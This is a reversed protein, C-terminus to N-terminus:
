KLSKRKTKIRWAFIILTLTVIGIIIILPQILTISTSDIVPETGYGSYTRSIINKVGLINDLTWIDVSYESTISEGPYLIKGEPNIEFREEIQRQKENMIQIEGEPKFVFDSTNTYTYEFTTDLLKPFGTQTINLDTITKTSFIEEITNGEDTIHIVVLAGFGNNLSIYNGTNLKGTNELEIVVLNFYTGEPTDKPIEITYPINLIQNSSLTYSLKETQVFPTSKLITEAQPDYNESYINITVAEATDNTFYINDTTIKETTLLHNTIHPSVQFANTFSTLSLFILITLVLKVSKNM